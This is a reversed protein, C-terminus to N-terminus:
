PFRPPIEDAAPVYWNGKRGWPVDFYRANWASVRNVPRRLHSGINEVLNTSILLSAIGNEGLVVLGFSLSFNSIRPPSFLKLIAHSLSLKLFEPATKAAPM